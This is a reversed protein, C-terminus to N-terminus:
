CWELSSLPMLVNWLMFCCVTASFLCNLKTDIVIITEDRTQCLEAAGLFLSRNSDSTM